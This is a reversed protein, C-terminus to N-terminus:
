PQKLENQAESPFNAGLAEILVNTDLLCFMLAGRGGAAM